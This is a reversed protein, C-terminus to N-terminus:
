LSAGATKEPLGGAGRVYNELTDDPFLPMGAGALSTIFQGLEALDVPNVRGPSFQPMLDPNLGNYAWLRPLLYRNLPATIQDVIASCARMFFDTKDKSLAFSGRADAGLMLFEALASRAINRDHRSVIKDTDLSRQGASSLLKVSVLPATSLSGDPNPFMDSPVVLGGQENFKVDRAIKEYRQRVLIDKPDTSTFYRAPISVVPLGALEREVGIAEFEEVTKKFYWPRYATRLISVGEPSNKRSVTRFLLSREIPIFVAAGGTPPLQHMGAIGGDPQMEWRLLSDQSRPALKRIGIRGDTYKSRRTADIENPGTRLKLVIETLSWGFALMSLAEDVFDTFTHSMDDICSEVFEAEAQAEPTDAAPTVTWTAARIILRLAQLVAGVVADNQSMEQYVRVGALGRLQPLYEEYLYGTAVKLGAVGIEVLKDVAPPDAKVVPAETDLVDAM